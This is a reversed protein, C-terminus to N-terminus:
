LLVKQLPIDSKQMKQTEVISAYDSYDFFIEDVSDKVTLCLDFIKDKNFIFHLSDLFRWVQLGSKFTADFAFSLPEDHDREKGKIGSEWGFANSPSMYVKSWATVQTCQKLVRETRQRIEERNYDSLTCYGHVGMTIWFKFSDPERTGNDDTVEVNDSIMDKNDLVDLFDENLQQMMM